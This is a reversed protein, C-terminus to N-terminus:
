PEVVGRRLAAYHLARLVRRIGNTTEMFVVDDVTRHYAGTWEAYDILHPAPDVVAVLRRAAAAQSCRVQEAALHADTEELSSMLERLLEVAQEARQEQYDRDALLDAIVADRHDDGAQSRERRWEVAERICVLAEPDLPKM